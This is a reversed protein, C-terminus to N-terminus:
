RELNQWLCSGPPILYQRRCFRSLYAGQLASQDSRVPNTCRGILLPLGVAVVVGATAAAEATVASVPVAVASVPAAAAATLTTGYTDFM